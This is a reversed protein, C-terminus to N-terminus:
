QNQSSFLIWIWAVNLRPPQSGYTTGYNICMKSPLVIQTRVYPVKLSERPEKIHMATGLGRTRASNELNQRARAVDLWKVFVNINLRGEM